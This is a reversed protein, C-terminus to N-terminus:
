LALCTTLFDWDAPWMLGERLPRCFFKTSKWILYCSCPWDQWLFVQMGRRNSHSYYEKSHFGLSFGITPGKEWHSYVSHIVRIQWPPIPEGKVYEKIPSCPPHPTCDTFEDFIGMSVFFLVLCFIEFRLADVCVRIIVRIGRKGLNIPSSDVSSVGSALNDSKIISFFFKLERIFGLDSLFFM